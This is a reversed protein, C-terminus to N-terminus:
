KSGFIVPEVVLIGIESGPYMTVTPPRDASKRLQNALEAGVTSLSGKIVKVNDDDTTEVPTSEGEATQVYNVQRLSERMIEGYGQLFAAGLLAGYRQFYHKNVDDAVGAMRTGVDVAVGNMQMPLGQPSTGSSFQLVVYDDSRKFNGIVRAGKLAGRRIQAMVPVGAVDSNIGTELTAYLITGAPVQSYQEPCDGTPCGASPTSPQTQGRQSAFAVQAFGPAASWKEVLQQAVVMNRDRERQYREPSQFKTKSERDYYDDYGAPPGQRQSNARLREMEQRMREKEAALLAMQREMEKIGDACDAEAVDQAAAGGPTVIASEGTQVAVQAAAENRKEVLENYAPSADQGTAVGEAKPADTVRSPPVPKTAVKSIFAYASFLLFSMIIATMIVAKKKSKPKEEPLGQEMPDILRDDM